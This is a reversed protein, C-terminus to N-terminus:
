CDPKRILKLHVMRFDSLLTKYYLSNCISVKFVVHTLDRNFVDNINAGMAQMLTKVGASRDKGNSIIEVYATVGKLIQQFPVKALKNKSSRYTVSSDSSGQMKALARRRGLASPSEYKLKQVKTMTKVKVGSQKTKSKNQSLVEVLLARKLPDNLLNELPNEPTKDNSYLSLRSQSSQIKGSQPTLFSLLNRSSKKQLSM